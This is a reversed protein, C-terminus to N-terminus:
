GFMYGNKKKPIDVRLVPGFKAFLMQIDQESSKFSLNRIILRSKKLTKSSIAKNQQSLLKSEMVSDCSKKYKAGNLGKVALRAAKHTSFTVHATQPESDVPFVMDEVVGFRECKKCLRKGSAQAPIGGVVAVKGVDFKASGRKSKARCQKKGVLENRATLAEYDDGSEEGEQGHGPLRTGVEGELGRGPPRTGVEGHGTSKWLNKKNAFTVQVPRGGVVKIAAKAKQADDRCPSM